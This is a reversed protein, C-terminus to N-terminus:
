GGAASALLEKVQDVSGRWPGPTEQKLTTIAAAFRSVVEEFTPIPAYPDEQM